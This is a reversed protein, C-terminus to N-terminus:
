RQFSDYLNGGGHKAVYTCTNIGWGGRGEFRRQWKHFSLLFFLLLSAESFMGVLWNIAIFHQM